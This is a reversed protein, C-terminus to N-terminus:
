PGDEPSEDEDESDNCMWTKGAYNMSRLSASLMSEEGEMSGLMIGGSASLASRKSHDLNAAAHEGVALHVRQQQFEQQHQQQHKPSFHADVTKPEPPAAFGPPQQGLQRYMQTSQLVPRLSNVLHGQGAAGGGGRSSSSGFFDWCSPATVPSPAGSNSSLGAVGAGAHSSSLEQPQACEDTPSTKVLVVPAANIANPAVVGVVINQQDVPSAGGLPTSATSSPRSSTGAMKVMRGIPKGSTFAKVVDNMHSTPALPGAGARNKPSNGESVVSNNRQSFCSGAFHTTPKNGAGTGRPQNGSPASQVSLSSSPKVTGGGLFATLSSLAGAASGAVRTREVMSCSASEEGPTAVERVTELKGDVVM